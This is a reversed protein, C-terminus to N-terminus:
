AIWQITSDVRQVVPGLPDALCTKECRAFSSSSEFNPFFPTFLYGRFEGARVYCNPMNSLLDKILRKTTYYRQSNKSTTQIVACSM